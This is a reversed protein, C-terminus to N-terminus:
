GFIGSNILGALTRLADLRREMINYVVRANDSNDELNRISVLNSLLDLETRIYERLTSNFTTPVSTALTPNTRNGTERPYISSLDDYDQRSLDSLERIFRSQCNNNARSALLTLLNNNRNWDIREFIRTKDTCDTCGSQQIASVTNMAYEQNMKHLSFEDPTQYDNYEM